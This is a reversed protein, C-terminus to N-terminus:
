AAESHAAPPHAAPASVVAALRAPGSATEPATEWRTLGCRECSRIQHGGITATPGHECGLVQCAARDGAAGTLAWRALARADAPATIATGVTLYVADAAASRVAAAAAALLSLM